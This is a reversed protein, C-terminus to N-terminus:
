WSSQYYFDGDQDELAPELQEIAITYGKYETTDEM